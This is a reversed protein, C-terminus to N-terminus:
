RERRSVSYLDLSTPDHVSLLKSTRVDYNLQLGASGGGGPVLIGVDAALIAGNVIMKGGGSSSGRSM